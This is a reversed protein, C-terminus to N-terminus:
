WIELEPGLRYTAGLTKAEQIGTVVYLDKM